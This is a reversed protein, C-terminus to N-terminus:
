PLRLYACINALQASHNSHHRSLVSHLVDPKSQLAIRPVNTDSWVSGGVPSGSFNVSFKKVGVHGVTLWLESCRNRIFSSNLQQFNTSLYCVLNHMVPQITCQIEVKIKIINNNKFVEFAVLAKTEKESM